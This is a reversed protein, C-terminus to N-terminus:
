KGQDPSIWFQKRGVKSGKLGSIYVNRARRVRVAKVMCPVCEEAGSVGDANLFRIIARQEEFHASKWLPLSAMNVM